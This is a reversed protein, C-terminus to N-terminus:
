EKERASCAAAGFVIMGILLGRYVPDWEPVSVPWTIDMHIFAMVWYALIAFAVANILISFNPTM